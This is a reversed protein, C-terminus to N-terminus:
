NGGNNLHISTVKGNKDKTITPTGGFQKTLPNSNLGNDISKAAGKVADKASDLVTSSTTGNYRVMAGGNQGTLMGLVNRQDGLLRYGSVYLGSYGILMLVSGIPFM